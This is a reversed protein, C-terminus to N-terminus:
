HQSKETAITETASCNPFRRLVRPEASPIKVIM